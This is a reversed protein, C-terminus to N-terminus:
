CPFYKEKQKFIRSELKFIGLHRFVDPLVSLVSACLPSRITLIHTPLWSFSHHQKLSLVSLFFLVSTHCTSRDSHAAVTSCPGPQPYRCSCTHLTNLSLDWRHNNLVQASSWHPKERAMCVPLSSYSSIINPLKLSFGVCSPQLIHYSLGVQRWCCLSPGLM